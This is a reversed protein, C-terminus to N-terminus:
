PAPHIYDLSFFPLASNIEPNSTDIVGYKKKGTQVLVSVM